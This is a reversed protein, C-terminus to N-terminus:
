HASRLVWGQYDFTESRRSLDVKAFGSGFSGYVLLKRGASVDVLAEVM